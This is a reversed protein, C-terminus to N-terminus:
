LLMLLAREEEEELERQVTEAAVAHAKATLKVEHRITAEGHLERTAEPDVRVAFDFTARAARVVEAEAVIRVTAGLLAAADHTKTYRAFQTTGLEWRVLAGGLAFKDAVLSQPEPPPPAPPVPIEHTYLVAGMADCEYLLPEGSQLLLPLGPTPAPTLRLPGLDGELLLPQGDQLLFLGCVGGGGGETVTAECSDSPAVAEAVSTPFLAAANQSDSPTISEGISAPFTAAASSSDAPSVSEIVNAPFTGVAASSDSPGASESVSAPFTGAASAADAPTVSEGVSPTYTTAPTAADVPTVSETTSATFIASASASDVPTASEGETSLQIASRVAVTGAIWAGSSWNTFSAPDEAGFASKLLTGGGVTAPNTDTGNAAVGNIYGSPITVSADNVVSLALALVWAGDTKTTISPCDPNTSTTPGATTTTADVIAASVGRLVYVGYATEDAANGTGLGVFTTDPVAGMVKYSIDFAVGSTNLNVLNSYGASSPGVTTAARFVHGGFAFVVDGQAMTPLNITVNGGNNNAGALAGGTVLSIAM